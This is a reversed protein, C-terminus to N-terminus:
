IFEEFFMLNNRLIVSIPVTISEAKPAKDKVLVESLTKIAESGKQDPNTYIIAQLVGRRLMDASEDFLDSGVLLLKRKAELRLAANCLPITNRARVSYAAIIAPDSMCEYYRDASPHPSPDNIVMVNLEPRHTRIYDTFGITNMRHSPSDEKGAAILITGSQQWIMSCMLEAGLRGTNEDNPAICCLRNLEGVDNDILVVRIGRDVFRKLSERSASSNTAPVTILGDLESGYECLYQRAYFSGMSHGLLFYPVGPYQAKTRVTMAHLDDLVARNGDPEAFYGYDAKTRISGGHGLHDHGTVLIGRAALYEALPKYRDIFEVMGHSLQLIARVDGDPVCRFAHLTRGPVTSPVTFDIMRSM